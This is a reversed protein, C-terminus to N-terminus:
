LGFAKRIADLPGGLTDKPEFEPSATTPDAKSRLRDAVPVTGDSRKERSEAQQRNEVRQRRQETEEEGTLEDVADAISTGLRALGPVSDGPSSVGEDPTDPPSVERTDHITAPMRRVDNANQTARPAPEDLGPEGTPNGSESQSGPVRAVDREVDGGGRDRAIDEIGM